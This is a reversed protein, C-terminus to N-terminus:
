GGSHMRILIRFTTLRKNEIKRSLNRVEVLEANGTSLLEQKLDPHQTFKLYITEEM